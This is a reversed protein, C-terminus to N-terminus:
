DAPALGPEGRQAGGVRLAFFSMVWSLLAIVATIGGLICVASWGASAYLSTSLASLIAGGLFCSVMYATTLRSRAEASLAYIASQNSIHLGQVGLDLAVIGVILLVVSTHGAALLAWSCGSACSRNPASSSCFRACCAETPSRHPRRFAPPRRRLTAALVLMAVAALAFVARWGVAAAVLGSVTRAVLIGILLGSM